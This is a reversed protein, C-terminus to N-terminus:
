QWEVRFKFLDNIVPQLEEETLFRFQDNGIFWAVPQNPNDYDANFVERSGYEYEQFYDNNELLHRTFVNSALWCYDSFDDNEACRRNIYVLQNARFTTEDQTMIVPFNLAAYGWKNALRYLKHMNNTDMVQSIFEFNLKFQRLYINKVEM